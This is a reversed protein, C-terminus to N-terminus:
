GASCTLSARNSTHRRAGSPSGPWSTIKLISLTQLRNSTGQMRGSSTRTRVFYQNDRHLIEISEIPVTNGFHQKLNFVPEDYEPVDPLPDTSDAPSKDPFSDPNKHPWAKPMVTGFATLSAIRMWSRRSFKQKM